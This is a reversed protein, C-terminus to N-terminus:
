PQGRVGRAVAALHQIREAEPLVLGTPFQGVIFRFGKQGRHVAGAHKFGVFGKHFQNM